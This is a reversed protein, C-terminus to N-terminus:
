RRFFPQYGYGAYGYGGYGYSPRAYGYGGYGFGDYPSAYYGYSAARRGCGCGAGYGYTPAYGYGYGRFGGASAPSAFLVLCAFIGAAITSSRMM